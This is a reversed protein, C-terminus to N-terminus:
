RQQKGCSRKPTKKKRKYEKTMRRKTLRVRVM